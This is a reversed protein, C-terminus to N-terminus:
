LNNRSVSARQTPSWLLRIASLEFKDYNTKVLNSNDQVLNTFKLSISRARQNLGMRHVFHPRATGDVFKDRISFTKATSPSSLNEALEEYPHDDYAVYLRMYEYPFKGMIELNRFKKMTYESDETVISDMEMLYIPMVMEPVSSMQSFLADTPRDSYEYSMYHGLNLSGVSSDSKETLLYLTPYGTSRNNEGNYLVDVVRNNYRVPIDDIGVTHVTGGDMNIFILNTHYLNGAAEAKAKDYVPYTLNREAQYTYNMSSTALEEPISDWKYLVQQNYNISDGDFYDRVLSSAEIMREKYQVCADYPSNVFLGGAPGDVQIWYAIDCEATTTFTVSVTVWSTTVDPKVQELGSLLGVDITESGVPYPFLSAAFKHGAKPTGNHARAKASITYRTNAELRIRSVVAPQALGDSAVTYKSSLQTSHDGSEFACLIGDEGIFRMSVGENFFMNRYTDVSKGYFETRQTEPNSYQEDTMPIPLSAKTIPSTGLPLGDWFISRITTESNVVEYWQVENISVFISYATCDAPLRVPRIHWYARSAMVKTEKVFSSWSGDPRRYFCMMYRNGTSGPTATLYNETGDSLYIRGNGGNFALGPNLVVGHESRGKIYLYPNLTVTELTVSVNDYNGVATARNYKFLHTRSVAVFGGDQEGFYVCPNSHDNFHGRISGIGLYGQIVLSLNYVVMNTPMSTTEVSSWAVVRAGSAEFTVLPAPHVEVSDQGFSAAIRVNAKNSPSYCCIMWRGINVAPGMGVQPQQFKAAFYVKYGTSDMIFQPGIGLILKDASLTARVNVTMSYSADRELNTIKSNVSDRTVTFRYFELNNNDGYVHMMYLFGDMGLHLSHISKGPLLAIIRAKANFVDDFSLTSIVPAGKRAYKFGPNRAFNRRYMIAGVDSAIESVAYAKNVVLYERYPTLTQYDFNNNGTDFDNDLVKTVYQSNIEFIGDKNIFYPTNRFVCGHQGGFDSTIKRLTADAPSNPDTSYNFVHISDDCIVYVNDGLGYAYNINSGPISFFGGGDAVEFLLPNNAGSFYIRNKSVLWLRDKHMFANQFSFENFYEYQADGSDPTIMIQEGVNNLDAFLYDSPRDSVTDPCAWIRIGVADDNPVVTNEEQFYEIWYNKYGYKFFAVLRNFYPVDVAPFATGPNWMVELSGDANIAYQGNPGSYVASDNFSGIFKAKTSSGQIDPTIAGIGKIDRRGTIRGDVLEMNHLRKFEGPRYDGSGNVTFGKGAFEVPFANVQMVM